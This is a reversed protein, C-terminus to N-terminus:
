LAFLGMVLGMIPLEIGLYKHGPTGLSGIQAYIDQQTTPYYPSGISRDLFLKTNETVLGLSNNMLNPNSTAESTAYTTYLYDNFDIYKTDGINIEFNESFEHGYLYQQMVDTTWSTKMLVNAYLDRAQSVCAVMCNLFSDKKLTYKNASLTGLVENLDNVMTVKDTLDQVTFFPESGTVYSVIQTKDDIDITPLSDWTESKDQAGAAAAVVAPGGTDRLISNNIRVGAHAEIFHVRDPLLTDNTQESRPDFTIKENTGDIFLGSNALNRAILTDHGCGDNNLATTFCNSIKCGNLNLNYCNQYTNIGYNGKTLNVFNFNCVKANKNNFLILSGAAALDNVKGGNGVVNLREVTAQYWSQNGHIDGTLYTSAGHTDREYDHAFAFLEPWWGKETGVLEQYPMTSADVTFYNGEFYFHEGVNLHRKFLHVTSNGNLPSNNERILKGSQKNYIHSDFLSPKIKISNQLVIGHVENTSDNDSTGIVSNEGNMKIYPTTYTILQPNTELIGNGDKNNHRNTGTTYDYCAPRTNDFKKLDQATYVNYADIVKINLSVSKENCTATLVHKGEEVQSLDLGNNNELITENDLKYSIDESLTAPDIKTVHGRNDICIVNVEFKFPNQKGVFFYGADDSTDKKFGAPSDESIEMTRKFQQVNSPLKIETISAKDIAATKEVKTTAEKATADQGHKYSIKFYRYQNLSRHHLGSTGTTETIELSEAGVIASTGDTFEVTAKVNSFDVLENAAYSEKFGQVNSLGSPTKSMDIPKSPAVEQGELDTFKVASKFTNKAQYTIETIFYDDDIKIMKPSLLAPKEGDTESGDFIALSTESFDFVVESNFVTPNESYTFAEALISSASDSPNEGTSKSLRLGNKNVTGYVGANQSTKGYYNLSFQGVVSDKFQKAEQEAASQNAYAMFGYYGAISVATLIAVIAIVVILEVLTFGKKANNRRFFRKM